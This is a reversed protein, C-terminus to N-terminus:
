MVFYKRETKFVGPKVYIYMYIYIYLLYKILWPFSPPSTTQSMQCMNSIIHSYPFPKRIENFVLYKYFFSRKNPAICHFCTPHAIFCIKHFSCHSTTLLTWLTRTVPPISYSKNTPADGKIKKDGKITKDQGRGRVRGGKIFCTM